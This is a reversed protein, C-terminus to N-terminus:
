PQDGCGHARGESLVQNRRARHKASLMARLRRHTHSAPDLLADRLSIQALAIPHNDPRPKAEQATVPSDGRRM